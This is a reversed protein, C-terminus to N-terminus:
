IHFFEIVTALSLINQDIFDFCKASLLLTISRLKKGGTVVIHNSAERILPIPSTIIENMYNNILQLEKSVLKYVNEM